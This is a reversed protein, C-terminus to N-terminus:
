RVPRSLCITFDGTKSQSEPFLTEQVTKATLLESQIRAKEVSEDLLTKIQGSMVTFSRALGGIEDRSTTKVKVDFDGGAIQETASVLERVPTLMRQIVVFAILFAASLSLISILISRRVLTNGAELARSRPVQSVVGVGAIGVRAFSGLFIESGDRYEQSGANTSAEIMERVIPTSAMNERQRVRSQDSHALVYGEGDVLALSYADSNAFSELLGDQRVAAMVYSKYNGPSSQQFPINFVLLPLGNPLIHSEIVTAGALVKAASVEATIKIQQIESEELQLQKSLSTNVWESESLIAGEKSSSLLSVTLLSRESLFQKLLEQTDPSESQSILKGIVSAKEIMTNMWTKVEGAKSKTLLESSSYITSINEAQFLSTANWVVVILAFTLTFLILAVIKTGISIRFFTKKM